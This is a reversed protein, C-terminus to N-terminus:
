QSIELITVQDNVDITRTQGAGLATTQLNGSGDLSSRSIKMPQTTEISVTQAAVVLPQKANVDYGLQEIWIALYFTGDRKELLLHHVNAVNGSLKYDLNGLPFAPGPDTLLGLLSKIANYGPKPSFDNHLLGFGNDALQAGIDVLEYIYTRRIGHLWQELFLRPLYKGSVDEPVGYSNSLDNIYGTETTIVPKGPWATNALALNWEISGYGNGGWGSTGPNRGGLYNHLNASDFSPAAPAMKPYSSQQTLSPGYIPFQSAAPGSKVAGHLLVAFSNLTASWNPGGSNDYENPAEYAELSDPVRRPYAALLAASQNASTVLDSKIGLRGLENLRDYYPTWTTDILGDRIHRVGLGKLANEVAAFNAYATNTYHLHVNVGASDVFADASQATEGPGNPAPQVFTFAKAATATQVDSNEVTVTVSGSSQAPTLVQIHGASVSVVSAASGGFRVVAGPRFNRGSITVSTGGSISGSDPLVASIAPAPASAIDLSVGTSASAALSDQVRAMFSFAGALAPTGSIAGTALNLTLGTPLQGGITSWSYPPVGGTVGLTAVYTNQVAGAPLITTGIQLPAPSAPASSKKVSVVLSFKTSVSSANADQVRATFSFAGTLAPTGTITGTPLNLTLGAPLRGSVASWSYPPTGGSVALTALYNSQVTAAPLATTMIQMPVAPSKASDM